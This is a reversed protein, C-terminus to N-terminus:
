QKKEWDTVRNDQSGRLLAQSEAHVICIFRRDSTETGLFQYLVTDFKYSFEYTHLKTYFLILFIMNLLYAVLRFLRYGV